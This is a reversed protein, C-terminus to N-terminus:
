YKIIKYENRCPPGDCVFVHRKGLPAIWSWITGAREGDWIGHNCVGREHDSLVFKIDDIGIPGERGKFWRVINSLRRISNELPYDELEFVKMEPSQYHNTTAAFGGEANRIVVKESATEVLAINGDRDAILFNHGIQHPIEELYSAAEETTKFTDLIWRTAVNMRVGPVPKKSYGLIASVAVALGAENVGGYRGVPHDTFSLSTLGGSPSTVVSTFYQNAREYWDYNRAFLPTEDITHEASVAFISCRPEIGLALVFTNLLQLDISCAEAIGRLEQLLGPAYERVYVECERAFQIKEKSAPPPFFKGKLFGGMQLGM